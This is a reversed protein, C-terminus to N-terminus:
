RFLRGFLSPAYLKLAVGTPCHSLSVFELAEGHRYPSVVCRPADVELRKNYAFRLVANPTELRFVVGDSTQSLIEGKGSFFYGPLQQTRAYLHFPGYVGLPKYINSRAQFYNIWFPEHAITASVNSQHLFEEIGAEGLKLYESPTSSKYQWQSHVHSSAILPVKSWISLPALHGGSLEHLVFGSFFYRGAGVTSALSQSFESVWPQMLDFKELSRNRLVGATAFVGAFLFGFVVALPLVDYWRRGSVPIKQAVGQVLMAAPLSGFVALLVLMRDLELQPKLPVMVSGLLLLHSVTLVYAFRKLGSFLFAGPLFFLLTVPHFTVASERLVALAERFNVGDAQHRHAIGRKVATEDLRPLNTAEVNQESQMFKFVGADVVFTYMWPLNVIAILVLSLAFKKDRLVSRLKLLALAALPLFALSMPTWCLMLSTACFLLLAEKNGFKQKGEVARLVLAFVLPFLAASCIFGLTGYKLAWRYWFLSSTMALVAAVGAAWYQLREVRAALFVSLPLVGFLLLAVILNYVQEVEFFYLLPWALLFVNHAGTSLLQTVDYGRNWLADYVPIWPFYEKLLNLRYIFAPHDDSFLLSNETASLLSSICIIASIPAIWVFHRLSFCRLAVYSLIFGLLIEGRIGPGQLLNYRRTLWDGFFLLCLSLVVGREDFVLRRRALLAYAGSIAMVGALLIAWQKTSTLLAEGPRGWLMFDGAVLGYFVLGLAM